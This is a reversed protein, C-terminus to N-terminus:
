QPFIHPGDCGNHFCIHWDDVCVRDLLDLRTGLVVVPNELHDLRHISQRLLFIGCGTAAMTLILFATLFPSGAGANMCHICGLTANTRCLRAVTELVIENKDRQQITEQGWTVHTPLEDATILTTRLASHETGAIRTKECRPGM